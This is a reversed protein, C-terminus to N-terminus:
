GRNVEQEGAAGRLLVVVDRRVDEPEVAVLNAALSATTRVVWDREVAHLFITNGERTGRRALEEGTAADLTVVADTVEGRLADEVIEQLPRQPSHFRGADRVRKVKSIKKVRFVREAERDVDFGVLYARNNLPVIGWPDIVRREPPKGAARVFDFSIRASHRVCAVIARFTDPDLQMIDNSVSELAPADFARTAGSAAIKTWGSRAFAGLSGSQSVDVALGVATAEEPTLDIPPLEYLDKDLWVEGDAYRVPVWVARLEEVDRAVLKSAAGQSRGGYGDVNRQVWEIDRKAPSALLAFTLNVQRSVLDSDDAM